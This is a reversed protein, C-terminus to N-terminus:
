TNFKGIVKVYVKKSDNRLKNEIACTYFGIDTLDVDCILLKTREENKYYYGKKQRGCSSGVLEDKVPEGNKLLWRVKPYPNGTVNCFLTLENVKDKNVTKNRLELIVAPRLASFWNSLFISKPNPTLNALLETENVAVRFKNQHIEPPVKKKQPTWNYNVGVGIYSTLILFGLTIWSYGGEPHFAM